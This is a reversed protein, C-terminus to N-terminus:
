GKRDQPSDALLAQIRRIMEKSDAPKLIYADAGYQSALDREKQNAQVTWIVIPIHRYRPDSKLQRCVALGDLKPLRIDLIILDPQVTHAKALGDQGDEAVVVEFGSLELRKSVTAIISPEDEVFLIRRKDTM